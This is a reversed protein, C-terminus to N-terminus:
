VKLKRTEAGSELAAGAALVVDERFHQGLLQVAVPLGGPTFGFPVSLAPSGTYDWPSTNRTVQYKPVKKGDV